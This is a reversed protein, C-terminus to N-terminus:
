PIVQFFNNILFFGTCHWSQKSISFSGQISVISLSLHIVKTFYKASTKLTFYKVIPQGLKVSQSYFIKRNVM